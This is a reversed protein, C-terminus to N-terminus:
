ETIPGAGFQETLVHGVSNCTYEAYDVDGPAAVRTLNRASDYECGWREYTTADVYYDHCKSRGIDLSSVPTNVFKTLLTTGDLKTITVVKGFGRDHKTRLGTDAM